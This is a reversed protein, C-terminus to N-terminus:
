YFDTVGELGTELELIISFDVVGELIIDFLLNYYFDTDGEFGKIDFFYVGFGETIVFYYLWVTEILGIWRLLLIYFLGFAV